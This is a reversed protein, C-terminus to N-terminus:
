FEYETALRFESPHVMTKVSQDDLSVLVCHHSTMRGENEYTQYIDTLYVFLKKKNPYGTWGYYKVKDEESLKDWYEPNFSTEDFVVVDGPRFKESRKPLGPVRYIWFYELEDIINRILGM